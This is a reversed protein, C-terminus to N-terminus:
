SATYGHVSHPTTRRQLEAERDKGSLEPVGGVPVGGVPAHEAMM